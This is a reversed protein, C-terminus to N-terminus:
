VVYEYQKEGKVQNKVKADQWEALCGFATLGAGFAFIGVQDSDQCTNQALIDKLVYLVSPSSMNGYRALVSRSYDFTDPEFPHISEIADLIARGGPHVALYDLDLTFDRTLKKYVQYFASAALGPVEKKLVNMLRGNKTVYRLDDRYQPWLISQFEKILLGTSREKNTMLCAAAGDGFISNSIILDLNESWYSTATCIEVALVIVNAHPHTNLYQWASKMGPVAAGCGTGVIDLAYINEKLGAAQSIYSTLGPCLYGTCTTIVIGDIDDPILGTQDLLRRVAETGLKTAQVQFRHIAEDQTEEFLKEPEDDIAVYRTHISPEALFKSYLRKEKKSRLPSNLIRELIAKQTLKLPPNATAIDVLKVSVM